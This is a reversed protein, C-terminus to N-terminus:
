GLRRCHGSRPVCVLRVPVRLFSVGPVGVSRLRCYASQLRCIPLPLPLGCCATDSPPSVACACARLSWGGSCGRGAFSEVSRGSALGVVGLRLVERVPLVRSSWHSWNPGPGSMGGCRCWVVEPWRGAVAVACDWRGRVRCCVGVVAVGAETAALRFGSWCPVGAGAAFESGWWVRERRRRRFGSRCPAGARRCVGGFSSLRETAAQKCGLRLSAGVRRRVVAGGSAAGDSGPQLGVLSRGPVPSGVPGCGRVGPLGRRVTASPNCGLGFRGPGLSRALSRPYEDADEDSIAQPGVM